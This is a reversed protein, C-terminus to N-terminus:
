EHNWEGKKMKREVFRDEADTYKNKIPQRSGEKEHYLRGRDDMFLEPGILSFQNNM